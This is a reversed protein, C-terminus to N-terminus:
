VSNREAQKEVVLLEVMVLEVGDDVEVDGVVVVVFVDVLVLGSTVKGGYVGIGIHVVAISAACAKSLLLIGPFQLAPCNCHPSPVHTDSNM